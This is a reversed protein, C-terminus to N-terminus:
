ATQQWWPAVLSLSSPKAADIRMNAASNVSYTLGHPDVIEDHNVGVPECVVQILAAACAITWCGPLQTVLNKQDRTQTSLASRWTTANGTPYVTWTLHNIARSWALRRSFPVMFPCISKPGWMSGLQVHRDRNRCTAKSDVGQRSLSSLENVNLRGASPYQTGGLM